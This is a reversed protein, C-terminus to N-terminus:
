MLGLLRMIDNYFALGMLLALMLLGIQQGRIMIAESPEKGTVAEYCFYMLHGGDLVPIPLLNLLGLSISIIALFRMFDVFGSQVTNGALQAITIPGSLNETSMETTLMKGIARFTIATMRWNYDISAAVAELPGYRLSTNEFSPMFLGIRGIEKNEEARAPTIELQVLADNRRVEFSLSQEPSASVIEVMDYWNAIPKNDIGVIEDGEILGSLEAPAGPQMRGVLAKPPTPYIGLQSTIPRRTLTNPDIKGFDVDIVRKQGSVDAVEFQLASGKMAQHLMFFEHQRWTQIERGNVSLMTDGPKFGAQEARSDPGIDGITPRIDPTGIQFVLWIALIAFIFNFAPGAFVVASRVWLPKNNFAQPRESEAVEGEREDLMKVFGGLPVAGIVYECPDDKRRWSFLTKGFGISFKLVKVKLLRAIWFHGFEHVTVLIAIAILFGLVNLLIGSM